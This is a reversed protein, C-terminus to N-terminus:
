SVRRMLRYKMWMNRWVNGQPATNESVQVQSKQRCADRYAREVMTCFNWTSFEQAMERAVAGMERRRKEDEMLYHLHMRFFEYSEYQFGNCGDAIVGELCKDKRCLAPVGSALAEIYTIGQTESNSACVFVDGLQYYVWVEEPAIMGTFCVNKEIGLERSLAELNEKNPGDGAILLTLNETGEALVSTFYNLIEELNKEKALRGVSVLVKNEAPIGLAEKRKNREEESLTKRFKRLDIGSPVVSIEKKVQYGRLIDKVKGTPAIVWDTRKLINRSFEAVAKQGARRGATHRGLMGPLYHMYDAYITHYTHLLPCGCKRSIKVAYAFTMFECQSHVVDPNWNVLEKMHPNSCPVAARANPYINSLDVSRVYYVENEKYSAGTESLTLVRVEHGREELERKLNLVSTVVGNVIPKYWDTTILIKM